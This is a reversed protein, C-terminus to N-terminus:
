VKDASLYGLLTKKLDPNSTLDAHTLVHKAYRVSAGRVKIDFIDAATLGGTIVDLFAQGCGAGRLNALAIDIENCCAKNLDLTQECFSLAEAPSGVDGNITSTM